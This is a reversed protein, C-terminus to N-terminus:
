AGSLIEQLEQCPCLHAEAHLSPRCLWALQYLQPRSHCAGSGGERLVTLRYGGRGGQFIESQPPPDGSPFNLIQNKQRDVEGLNM